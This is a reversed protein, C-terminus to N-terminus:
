CAVFGGVVRSVGVVVMVGFHAFFVCVGDNEDRFVVKLEDHALRGNEHRRSDFAHEILPTGGGERGRM